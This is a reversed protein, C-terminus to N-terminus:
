EKEGRGGGGGEERGRGFSAGIAHPRDIRMFAVYNSAMVAVPPCWQASERGRARGEEKGKEKGERKKKKRRTSSSLMMYVPVQLAICRYSPATTRATSSTRQADNGM